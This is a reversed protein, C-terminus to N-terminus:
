GVSPVQPQQSEGSIIVPQGTDLAKREYERLWRSLTWYTCYEGGKRSGAWIFPCGFRVQFALISQLAAHPALASRYRHRAVDEMNAEIVVAFCELSRARELERTFRDRGVALCGILDNLNKREVAVRHEHGQISYDGTVLGVRHVIAGFKSFDYPLQERTDCIINLPTM